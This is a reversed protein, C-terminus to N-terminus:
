PPLFGVAGSRKTPLPLTLNLNPNASMGIGIGIGLWYVTPSPIYDTVTCDGPLALDGREPLGSKL